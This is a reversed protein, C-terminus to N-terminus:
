RRCYVRSTRPTVIGSSFGGILWDVVKLETEVKAVQDPSGCIQAANIRKQQGIGGVFFIDMSEDVLTGQSGNVYFTQKACGTVALATCLLLVYKM